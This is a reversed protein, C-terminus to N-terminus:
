TRDGRQRVFIGEVFAEDNGVAADRMSDRFIDGAHLANGSRVACILVHGNDSALPQVTIAIM